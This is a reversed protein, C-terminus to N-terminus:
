LVSSQHAWWGFLLLSQDKCMVLRINEEWNSHAQTPKTSRTDLSTHEKHKYLQHQTHTHKHSQGHDICCTMCCLMCHWSWAYVFCPFKAEAVVVMPLATPAPIWHPQNHSVQMQTQSDSAGKTQKNNHQLTTTQTDNQMSTNQTCMPMWTQTICGSLCTFLLAVAKWPHSM